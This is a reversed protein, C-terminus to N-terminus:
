FLFLAAFVSIVGSGIGMVVQIAATGARDLKGNLVHPAPPAALFAIVYLVAAMFACSLLYPVYLRANKKIGLLALKPSFGARM